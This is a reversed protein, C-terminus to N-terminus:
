YRERKTLPPDDTKVLGHFRNKHCIGLDSVDANNGGANNIDIRQFGTAGIENSQTGFAACLCTNVEPNYGVRARHLFRLAGGLGVTGDVHLKETINRSGFTM